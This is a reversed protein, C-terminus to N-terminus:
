PRLPEWFLRSLVFLGEVSSAPTLAPVPLPPLSSGLYLGEQRLEGPVIPWAWARVMRRGWAGGHPGVLGRLSRAARLNQPYKRDGMSDM